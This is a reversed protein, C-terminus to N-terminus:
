DALADLLDRLRNRLEARFAAYAGHNSELLALREDAATRLVDVEALLADREARLAHLEEDLGRMRELALTMEGAASPSAAGDAVGDTTAALAARLTAALAAM